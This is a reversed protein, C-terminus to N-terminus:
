ETDRVARTVVEDGEKLDGRVLEAYENDSLGTLIRMSQPQGDRLVYVEGPTVQVPQEGNGPGGAGGFGGGGPRGPMLATIQEPTLFAQLENQLKQRALQIGNRFDPPGGFGGGRPGGGSAQLSSQLTAVFREIAEEAQKHKEPPLELKKLNERFAQAPNGFQGGGTNGGAEAGPPRFRLAANPIRLVDDHQGLIIDINATMGPLLSQDRNAANIIVKYTVVNATTTAAKRVQVVEGSFVRNPFADVRFRVNLGERIKGIDSEDLSAEIQMQSLDQAIQFLVPAQLSAAVTQGADVQRDIVIGAVPSRIYTRELDLRSQEVVAKRQMIQAQAAKVQAKALAVQAVASRNTAETTDLESQSILKREVLQKQRKYESAWRDREAEAKLLSAEQQALNAEAAALDAENQQLRARITRDDIRAIVQGQTVQSNFDAHLESILGSIESGVDVTVLPSIIGAANVVSEISGKSVPQTQFTIEEVKGTRSFYWAAAAAIIVALIILRKFM